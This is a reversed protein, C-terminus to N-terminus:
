FIMLFFSVIYEESVSRLCGVFHVYRSRLPLVHPPALAGFSWHLEEGDFLSTFIFFIWIDLLKRNYCCCRSSSNSRRAKLVVVGGTVCCSWFKISDSCLPNECGLGRVHQM